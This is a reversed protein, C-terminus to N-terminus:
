ASTVPPESVLLLRAVLKEESLGGGVVDMVVAAVAALVSRVLVPSILVLSEPEVPLELEASVPSGNSQSGDIPASDNM